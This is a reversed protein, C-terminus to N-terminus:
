GGPEPVVEFPPLPTLRLGPRLFPLPVRSGHARYGHSDTIRLLVAEIVPEEELVGGFAHQQGGDSPVMRSALGSAQSTSLPVRFSVIPALCSSM